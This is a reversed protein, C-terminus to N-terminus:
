DTPENYYQGWVEDELIGVSNELSRIRADKEAVAEGLGSFAAWLCVVTGRALCELRKMSVAKPQVGGLVKALREM